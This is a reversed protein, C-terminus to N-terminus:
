RQGIDETWLKVSDVAVKGKTSKHLIIVKIKAVTRGSKVNFLSSIQRYVGSNPQDNFSATFVEANGNTYIVRAKIRGRGSAGTKIFASIGLTDGNNPPNVANKFNVLQILKSSELPGGKFYYACSGEYAPKNVNNCIRKDKVRNKATWGLPVQQNNPAKPQEFGGEVLLNPFEPETPGNYVFTFSSTTGGAENNATVSWTYNGFELTGSFQLVCTNATTTCAPDNYPLTSTQVVGAGDRTLTFTYSYVFDTSSSTQWSFQTLTLPPEFQSNNAPTLLTPAAPANALREIAGIDCVTGIPRNIGRQDTTTCTAANGGDLAPSGQLLTHVPILSPYNALATPAIGPTASITDSTDGSRTCGADSSLLNDGTSTFAGFCDPGTTASNNAIITNSFNATSGSALYLGGGEQTTLTEGDVVENISGNAAFTLNNATLGWGTALYVAGGRLATNDSFTVNSLTVTDAGPGILSTDAYSDTETHVAGGNELTANGALSTVSVNRILTSNQITVSASSISVAGGRLAQNEALLVNNLTAHAGPFQIFVGGGNGWYATQNQMGNRIEVGSINVASPSIMSNARVVHFIRDLDLGDIVTLHAGAGVINMSTFIDLDGYFSADEDRYNFPTTAPDPNPRTLSYTGAPINITSGPQRENAEMVAARLSCAGTSDACNGDGPINDITDATTNVNFTVPEPTQKISMNLTFNTGSATPTEEFVAVRIYYTTGMNLSLNTLVPKDRLILTLDDSCAVRNLNALTSGSYVNVVPNFSPDFPTTEPTTNPTSGRLDITVNQNSTPTYSYWVTSFTLGYENIFPYCQFEIDSTDTDDDPEGTEVTADEMTPVIDVYPLNAIPKANAFADHPPILRQATSTSVLQQNTNYPRLSWTAPDRDPEHQANINGGVLLLLLCLCIGISRHHLNRM